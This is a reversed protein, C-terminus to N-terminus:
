IKIFKYVKGNYIFYYVGSKLNGISFSGSEGKVIVSNGFLSYIEIENAFESNQFRIYDNAPNPCVDLINIIDEKVSIPNKSGNINNSLTIHKNSVTVDISEPSFYYSDKSFLIKHNGNVLNRLKFKGDSDSYVKRKGSAVLVDALGNNAMLEPYKKELTGTIEYIIGDVDYVDLLEATALPLTSLAGKSFLIKGSNFIRLAHWAKADPIIYESGGIRLEVSNSLGKSEDTVVWGMKDGTIFPSTNVGSETLQTLTNNEFLYIQNDFGEFIIKSKEMWITSINGLPEGGTIPKDIQYSKKEEISYVEYVNGEAPKAEYPTQFVVNNDNDIIPFACNASEKSAITTAENGDWLYIKSIYDGEPPNWGEFVVYGNNNIRPFNEEGGGPFIETVIGNSYLFIDTDTGEGYQQWVIQGNDNISPYACINNFESILNNIRKPKTTPTATYVNFGVLNTLTADYDSQIWVMQKQKNISLNSYGLMKQTNNDTIKTLIGNSFLYVQSVEPNDLDGGVFVIDGNPTIDFTKFGEFSSVEYFDDVVYRQDALMSVPFVLLFVLFIKYYYLM